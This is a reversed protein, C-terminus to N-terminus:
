GIGMRKRRNEYCLFERKRRLALEKWDSGSVEGGRDRSGEERGKM